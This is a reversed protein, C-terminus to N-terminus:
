FDGIPQNPNDQRLGCKRCIFEHERKLAEIEALMDKVLEVGFVGGHNTVAEIANEARQMIPTASM